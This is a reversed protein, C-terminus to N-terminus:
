CNDAKRDAKAKQTKASGFGTKGKGMSMQKGASKPSPMASSLAKDMPTVTPLKKVSGKGGYNRSM